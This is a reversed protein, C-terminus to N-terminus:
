IFFFKYLPLLRHDFLCRRNNASELAIGITTTAAVTHAAARISSPTHIGSAAQAHFYIVEDSYAWRYIGRFVGRSKDVPVRLMRWFVPLHIEFLKKGPKEKKKGKPKPHVIVIDWFRTWSVKQWMRVCMCRSRFGCSSFNEGSRYASNLSMRRWTKPM